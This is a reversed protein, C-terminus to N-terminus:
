ASVVMTTMHRRYRDGALCSLYTRRLDIVFWVVYRVLGGLTLVEVTFFDAATIVGFHPKLFDEVADDQRAQLPIWAM